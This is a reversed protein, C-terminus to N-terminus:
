ERFKVSNRRLEAEIFSKINELKVDYPVTILLIRNEKCIRRKM